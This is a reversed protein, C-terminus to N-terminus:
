HMLISKAIKSSQEWSLSPNGYVLWHSEFAMYIDDNNPIDDKKRPVIQFHIPKTQGQGDQGSFLALTSSNTGVYDELLLQVKQTLQFLDQLEEASAENLTNYSCKLMVYAHGPLIHSPAMFAVSYNTEELISGFPVKATGIEVITPRHVDENREKKRLSCFHQCNTVIKHAARRLLNAEHAMEEVTRWHSAGESFEHGQLKEEPQVGEGHTPLIHIHFHKVTQGAFEGDQIAISTGRCDYVDYLLKCTVVMLQAIDNIESLTLDALRVAPREPTLLVHGPVVPKKNVFAQSLQSKFFICSGPVQHQGYQYSVYDSPLQQLQLPSPSEICEVPALHYLDERRHQVVPMNRRIKELYQLDIEALAINTGESVQAVVAGWPDIVLAHGYSARKQNHHGTQAAAIVYCQNEIARARLLPEWHALGTPVTFASPFTLIQAGLRRHLISLEPFRLDYCISSALLGVPTRIVTGISSGEQVKASERLDVNKEPLQVDFLHTKVYKSVIDGKDNIIMHTNKLKTEDLEKIHLGGLSLWVKKQAALLCYSQVTSGHLSESLALMEEKSSAIYDCAEPLFVMKAGLNVAKEILYKCDLYNKEKDATSTMQAVAVLGTKRSSSDNSYESGRSSMTTITRIRNEAAVICRTQRVYTKPFFSSVEQVKHCVRIM